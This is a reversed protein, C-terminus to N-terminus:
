PCRCGSYVRAGIGQSSIHTRKLPDLYRISDAFRSDPKDGGLGTAMTNIVKHWCPLWSVPPCPSCGRQYKSLLERSLHKGRMLVSPTCQVVKCQNVPTSNSDGMLRAFHMHEHSERLANRIM